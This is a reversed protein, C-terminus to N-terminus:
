AALIFPMKKKTEENFKKYAHYDTESFITNQSTFQRFEKCLQQTITKFEKIPYNMALLTNIYQNLSIENKKAEISLQRHLFKPIRVIFKGSYSEEDEKEPEPIKIGKKLYDEFYGKKVDELNKLAEEITEGDGTFAYKGLQPISAEYGGGLDEPIPTIKISYKLSQFYNLDKKV